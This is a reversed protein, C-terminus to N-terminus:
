EGSRRIRAFFPLASRRTFWIYLAFALGGGVLLYPLALKVYHSILPWEHGLIYGAGILSTCWVYAGLFTAALFIGFPMRVLGAPISVLTRVGPMVRGIMVLWTGWHHFYGEVKNLHETPIRIWQALKEVLPRGGLRAIWYTISSGLVSGLTAYFGGVLILTPPLGHQEILMWGALGLIVESPTIGTANEFTLLIAVGFWGWVDYLNQLTGLIWNEIQSVLIVEL